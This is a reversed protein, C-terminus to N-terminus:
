REELEQLRAPDVDVKDAYRALRVAIRAAQRRKNMAPFWDAPRFGPTALEQLTRGLAGAQTLLSNEQEGLLGLATQSFELLRAANSARQHDQQVQTEEDPQLRAAAIENVQFRLLDLQQAYTKEDVILAAKEAELATRRRVLGAFADREPECAAM